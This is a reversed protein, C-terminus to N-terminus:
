MTPCAYDVTLNRVAINECNDFLFPTMKGHVIVTAGNGDIAINKKNKLFMATRRLGNPNEHKKATNTCYYGEFEFSDDQRVHYVNGKELTINENDNINLFLNCLENYMKM